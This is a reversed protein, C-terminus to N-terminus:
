RRTNGRPIDRDGEEKRKQWRRKNYYTLPNQIKECLSDPKCLIPLHIKIKECSMPTYWKTEGENELSPTEHLGFGLKATINLKEQPDDQFLPPRCNDAAEYIIPLIENLTISLTPDFDSVKHPKREKFVAPYLRAYSLFGTLLLVIADNRNGAQVGKITNKICPPFADFDLKSAKLTGPSTKRPIFFERSIRERIKEALEALIPHPEIKAAMEHIKYIYEQTEQMILAPIINERISKVIQQTRGTASKDLIVKGDKLILETLKIRKNELLKELKTWHPTESDLMEGLIGSIVRERERNEMRSLREKVIEAELEIFIRSERSNPNFKAGIAQALIHFAIVDFEAIEPNFLFRYYGPQYRRRGRKELYWEIRKLSLEWLSGPIRSDDDLRQGRTYEIISILRADEEIIKDLDGSDRVLEKAEQSFPNIFFMM